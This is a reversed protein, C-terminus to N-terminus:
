GGLDRRLSPPRLGWHWELSTDADVGVIARKGDASWVVQGVPLDRVSKLLLLSSSGVRKVTLEDAPYNPVSEYREVDSWYAYANKAGRYNRNLVYRYLENYIQVLTLGSRWFKSNGGHKIFQEYADGLGVREWLKHFAISGLGGAERMTRRFLTRSASDHAGNTGLAVSFPFHVAQHIYRRLQMSAEQAAEVTSFPGFLDPLIYRLLQLAEDDAPDALRPIKVDFQKVTAGSVVQPCTEFKTAARAQLCFAMTVFITVNWVLNRKGNARGISQNNM